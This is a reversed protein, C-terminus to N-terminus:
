WYRHYTKGGVDVWYSPTGAGAAAIDRQSKWEVHGDTYAENMGGNGPLMANWWAFYGVNLALGQMHACSFSGNVDFTNDTWLIDNTARRNIRTPFAPAVLNGVGDATSGPRWRLTWDWAPRTGLPTTTPTNALGGFYAYGWASALGTQGGGPTQTKNLFNADSNAEPFSPCYFTNRSVHYKQLLEDRAARSFVDPVIYTNDGYMKSSNHWDPFMGRSDDAAYGICLVALQRLNSACSVRAAAERAKTLAPLLIAVLVSIIGIVVLLEVLTFGWRHQRMRVGAILHAVVALNRALEDHREHM